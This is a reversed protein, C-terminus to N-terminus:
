ATDAGPLLAHQLVCRTTCKPAEMSKCNRVATMCYVEACNCGTAAATCGVAHCLHAQQLACCLFAQLVTSHGAKVQQQLQYCLDLIPNAKDLEVPLCRAAAPHLSPRSTGTYPGGECGGEQQLGRTSLERFVLRTPAAPKQTGGGAGGVWCCCAMELLLACSLRLSCYMRGTSHSSCRLVVWWGGLLRGAAIIVAGM